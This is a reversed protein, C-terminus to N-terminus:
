LSDQKTLCKQHDASAIYGKDGVLLGNVHKIFVPNKLLQVDHVNAKTTSVSVIEQEQDVIIHLKFGQYFGHM